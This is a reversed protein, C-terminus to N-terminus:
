NSAYISDLCEHSLRSLNCKRKLNSRIFLPLNNLNYTENFTIPMFKGPLAIFHEFDELTSYLFSKKRTQKWSSSLFPFRDSDFNSTWTHIIRYERLANTIVVVIRESTPFTSFLRPRAFVDRRSPPGNKSYRCQRSHAAHARARTLALPIPFFGPSFFSLFTKVLVFPPLSPRHLSLPHSSDPTPPFGVFCCVADLHVFIPGKLKFNRNDRPHRSLQHPPITCTPVLPPPLRSSCWGPPHSRALSCSLFLSLSISRSLTSPTLAFPRGTHGPFFDM